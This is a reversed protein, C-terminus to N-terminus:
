PAETLQVAVMSYEYAQGSGGYMELAIEYSGTGSPEFIAAVSATANATPVEESLDSWSGSTATITVRMTTSTGRASAWVAIPGEKSTTAYVSAVDQWSSGLNTGSYGSTAWWDNGAADELARVRSALVALEAPLGELASVRADLGGVETDLDRVDMIVGDLDSSLADVEAQLSSVDSELETVDISGANEVVQELEDVQTSQAELQQSLEDLQAQLDETTAKTACGITPLAVALLLTYRTTSM